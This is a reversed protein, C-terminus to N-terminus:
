PREVFRWKLRNFVSYGLVLVGFSVLAAVGLLGWDLPLAPVKEGSVVVPSSAVLVKKYATVLMAIPNLHYFTYLVHGPFHLQKAHYVSESFYIIPCLYFMLYLLVSLIYKVDEYFTNLASALLGLGTVLMMHIFFLVPLLLATVQFPLVKPDLIFVVLQYLFFVALAILFHIFNSIIVALPLVERPFYVKKVVPIAVLVSQSSDLIAQQTFLYPLLGALVYAAYNDMQFGGFYRFVLTLVAATSLPAMFSWLVGFVSNKYRIKIERQVMALLLERFRWLERLEERM